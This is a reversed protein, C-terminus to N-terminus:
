ESLLKQKPNVTGGAEVPAYIDLTNRFYEGYKIGLHKKMLYRPLFRFGWSPALIMAAIGLRLGFEIVVMSSWLLALIKGLISHKTVILPIVLM